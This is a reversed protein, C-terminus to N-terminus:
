GVDIRSKDLLAQFKSEPLPPSFLFGQVYDCGFTQLLQYQAQTEVGEAITRIGLKHAMVIIAETLAKDSEDETLDHIFSRDIKLYDIDFRKLYSLASFGTGFDDISLEIGHNRFELLRKQVTVSKDLLLGETIEVAISNGPLGMTDLTSIWSDANNSQETFQAPSKNVSVAILRGYKRRWREVSTIAERFVWSGIESILGAEEALPIFAAPSIDGRQPHHWRLLAEAKVIHGSSLEVIPQYYVELQNNTLAQRLDNSLALKEHAEQQMSATFYSFRNRGETKAAYMAQDAHKLLEPMDQADNPYITIGVSASVYGVEESNLTFPSSLRQIINQVIRELHMTSNFEPLIVTFEDGGLRAVTDTERVCGLIRLAAEVLLQDGQAHGLTDNIEKFRDLDIFMLALSHRTRHAKKIEQELRDHFLRRNPLGTLTDYNAQKWILEDKLKKDTIDSFQALHRHVSGDPHRTVSLSTWQAYFEGSKRRNWIEGQWRDERLLTHWMQQYFSKDQRGSQLLRPNQGLVDEREYGTLRTFAPNVDVINNDADTVMIAESSTQYISAALALAEEVRKRETIDRALGTTGLLHGHSDFIPTRFTELWREEQNELLSEEVYQSKGSAMIAQDAARCRAAIEPPLVQQDIQGVLDEPSLDSYARAFEHNVALFRGEKDKLWARYPLNDLLTRLTAENNRRAQELAQLNEMNKRAPRAVLLHFVPFILTVLLTADLLTAHFATMPPLLPLILMVLVEVSFVTVALLLLLRSPSLRKGISFKAQLFM